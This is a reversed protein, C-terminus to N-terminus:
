FIVNVKVMDGCYIINSSSAFVQVMENEGIKKYLNNDNNLMVISDIEVNKFNKM